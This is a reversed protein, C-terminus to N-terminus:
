DVNAYKSNHLISDRTKFYVPCRVEVCTYEAIDCHAGEDFPCQTGKLKARGLYFAGPLGFSIALILDKYEKKARPSINLKEIMELRESIDEVYRWWVLRVIM